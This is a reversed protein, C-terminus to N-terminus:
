NENGFPLFSLASHKSIIYNFQILSIKRNKNLYNLVAKESPFRTTADLHNYANYIEHEIPTNLPKNAQNLSNKFPCPELAKTIKSFFNFLSVQIKFIFNYM